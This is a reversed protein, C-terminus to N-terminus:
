GFSEGVKLKLYLNIKFVFKLFFLSKMNILILMGNLDIGIVIWLYM